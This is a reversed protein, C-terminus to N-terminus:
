LHFEASKCVFCVSENNIFNLEIGILQNQSILVRAALKEVDRENYGSYIKKWFNLNLLSNDQEYILLKYGYIGDVISDDFLSSISFKNLDNIIIAGSHKKQESSFNIRFSKKEISISCIEYDHFYDIEVKDVNNWDVYIKETM